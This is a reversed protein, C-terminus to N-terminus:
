SEAQGSTNVGMASKLRNFEEFVVGNIEAEDFHLGRRRLYDIVYQYKQDGNGSKYKEEAARVGLVVADMVLQFNHEGVKAKLWQLARIALPIILVQIIWELLRTIDIGGPDTEQNAEVESSVVQPPAPALEATPQVNQSPVAVAEGFAMFPVVIVSVILLVLILALVKKM